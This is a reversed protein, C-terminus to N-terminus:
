GEERLHVGSESGIRRGTDIVCCFIFKIHQTFSVPGEYVAKLNLIGIEM